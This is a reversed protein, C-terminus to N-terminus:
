GDRLKRITTRLFLDQETEREAQQLLAEVEADLRDYEEKSLPRGPNCDSCRGCGNGVSGGCQYSM